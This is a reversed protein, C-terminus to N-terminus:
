SRPPIPWVRVTKDAGGSVLSAGGPVWALSQVAGAHGALRAHEVGRIADIVRIVGDAGAVALTRSDEAMAFTTASEITRFPAGTEPDWLVVRSDAGSTILLGRNQAFAVSSVAVGAGHGPFVKLQDGTAADWVAIQGSDGGTVIRDGSTSFAFAAALGRAAVTSIRSGTELDWISYGAGGDAGGLEQGIARAGDPAIARFVLGEGGSLQRLEGATRPDWVRLAFDTPGAASAALRAGGTFGVVLIACDQGHGDFRGSQSGSSLDWIRVSCDGQGGGSLVHLQDSSVALATVPATHGTFVSRAGGPSPATSEAGRGPDPAPTPTPGAPTVTEDTASRTGSGPGFLSWALYAGYGAGVVLWLAVGMLLLSRTTPSLTPRASAPPFEIRPKAPAAPAAPVPAIKIEATAPGPPPPLPEGPYSPLPSSRLPEPPPPVYVREVTPESPLPPLEPPPPEPPKIRFTPQTDSSPARPPEIVPNTSPDTIADSPRPRSSSPVFTMAESFSSEQDAGCETCFRVGDPLRAGCVTCAPM